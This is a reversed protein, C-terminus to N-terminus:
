SKRIHATCFDRLATQLIKTHYKDALTMSPIVPIGNADTVINIRDRNSRSRDLLSAEPDTFLIRKLM